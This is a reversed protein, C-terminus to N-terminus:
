SRLIPMGIDVPGGDRTHVITRDLDILKATAAHLGDVEGLWGNMRAETIRDALNRVIEALRERQRPDIRLVPCRICAERFKRRGAGVQTPLCGDVASM